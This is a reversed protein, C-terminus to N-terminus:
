RKGTWEYKLDQDIWLYKYKGTSGMESTLGMDLEGHYGKLWPPWFIYFSEAPLPIEWVLEMERIHEDKLIRSREVPDATVKWQDFVEEAIPDEVLSFNYISATVGGHAWGFCSQPSANGWYSYCMGPYNRGYIMSSHAAGEVVNVEMDVGVDALYEKVIILLDIDRESPYIIAETKFGDPYGAEALLERAKDPHYEYIERAADPLEELPTYGEVNGPQCPWTVVFAEGLFYEENIKQQDIALALARRVRVDSFPELDSRMFIVKTGTPSMKRNLMEPNTERMDAVKDWGVSGIDIKHTRLAALYTSEEIIILGRLTDVYPLRNEPHFPDSMFYNPNRKWTVSSGPVCDEVIFAGTGCAHKWDKLDGYAEISEPTHTFLWSGGDLIGVYPEYLKYEITWEDIKSMYSGATMKGLEELKALWAAIKEPNAEEEEAIWEEVGSVFFTNRPNLQGREFSYIIDDATMERGNVPEVNHFYVGQRIHWIMTALDLLEWSEALVGTRLAESCHSIIFPNEGTGGPGRSWDAEALKDYTVAALHGGIASIVPDFYDTAKSSPLHGVM